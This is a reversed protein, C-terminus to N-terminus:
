VNWQPERIAGPELVVHKISLGDLIPLVTADVLTVSGLESEFAPPATALSTTHPSTSTMAEGEDGRGGRPERRVRGAAPGRPRVAHRSRTRAAPHRARRHEMTASRAYM